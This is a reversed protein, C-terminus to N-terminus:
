SNAGATHAAQKASSSHMETSAAGQGPFGPCREHLGNTIALVAATSAGVFLFVIAGVWPGLPGALFDILLFWLGASLATAALIGARRLFATASKSGQIDTM